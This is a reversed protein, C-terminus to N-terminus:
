SQIPSSDQLHNWVTVFAVVRRDFALEASDHHDCHDHFRLGIMLEIVVSWRQDNAHDHARDVSIMLGIVVGM